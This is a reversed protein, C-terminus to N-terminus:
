LFTHTRVHSTTRISCELRIGQSPPGKRAGGSRRPPGTELTTRVVLIYSVYIVFVTTFERSRDMKYGGQWPPCSFPETRNFEVVTIETSM